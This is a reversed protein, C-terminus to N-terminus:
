TLDTGESVRCCSGRIILEPELVDRTFERTGNIRDVLRKVATRGLVRNHNSISSLNIHPFAAYASNNYGLLSLDEPIRLKLESAAQIVGLAFRDSYAFVATVSPKKALYDMALWSYRDEGNMEVPCEVVSGECGYQEMAQLFGRIRYHSTLSNARGGLFAVRRHGLEALYQGGLHGGRVNDASVFSCDAGHNDGLYVVPLGGFLTRLHEMSEPTTPSVIVGDVQQRLMQEAAEYERKEERTTNCILLHYGLRRAAMEIELAMESFFPNSIDPIILGLTHSAQKVLSRAAMNPVYGMERCIERIRRKTADSIEPRDSLVRSVTGTSVGAREAVDKITVHKM